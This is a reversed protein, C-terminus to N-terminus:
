YGAFFDRRVSLAGLQTAHKAVADVMTPPGSVYVSRKAIGEAYGRIDASSLAGEHIIVKVFKKYHELDIADAKNKVAYILVIDRVQGEYELWDLQSLFPTIGVGGAIFLLKQNVDGPLVFDGWIGTIRLQKGIGLKALTKKFTSGQEPHRTIITVDKTNPRSAITFMRRYGREDPKVHPLHLEAYQGAEFQLQKHATFSYEIQDGGSFKRRSKLTLVVSRQGAVAASIVNGVLLALEPTAAIPGLVFGSNAIVAVAVAISNRQKKRPALTQPETLMFSAFFLIPYSTLAVWLLNPEFSGRLVATICVMVLSTLIYLLVMDGRRTKYVVVCGLILVFPLLWPTAVWWSAYGLGVIGTVVVGIAAPNFLHKGRWIVLYKSMAAFVAAAGILVFNETSGNPSILFYLIFATVLISEPNPKIKFAYALLRDVTYGFGVAILLQVAMAVPFFDILGFFGFVWSWVTLGFLSYLVTRYMTTKDIHAKVLGLLKM